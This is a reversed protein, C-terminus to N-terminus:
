RACPEDEKTRTLQLLDARATAAPVTSPACHARCTSRRRSASSPPRPPSSECAATPRSSSGSGASGTRRRSRRRQTARERPAPSPSRRSRAAARRDRQVVDRRGALLSAAALPDGSVGVCADAGILERLQPIRTAAEAIPALPPRSRTCTRWARSTGISSTASRSTPRTRTTTSACRCRSTGTSRRTCSSYRTPACRSTPSRRSCCRPPAPPRRTRSWRGARAQYARRRRGGHGTDRRRGRRGAARRALAGRAAPLRLQGHKWARRDLRRGGRRPARDPRRVGSRRHRARGDAHAPLRVTGRVDARVSGSATPASGCSAPWPRPSGRRTTHRCRRRRSGCRRDVILPTSPMPAARGSRGGGDRWSM